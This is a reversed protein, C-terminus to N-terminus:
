LFNMELQKSLRNRADYSTPVDYLDCNESPLQSVYISKVSIVLIRPEIPRTVVGITQSSM